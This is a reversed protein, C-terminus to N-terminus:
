KSNASDALNQLTRAAASAVHPHKDEKLSELVSRTFERDILTAAKAAKWRVFHRPDSSILKTIVGTLRQAKDPMQSHPALYGLLDLLFEKHTAEASSSIAYDSKKTERNFYWSIPIRDTSAIQLMRLNGSKLSVEATSIGRQISVTDGPQAIFSEALEVEEDALFVDGCPKGRKKFINVQASGTGFFGILMNTSSIAVHRLKELEIRPARKAVAIIRDNDIIDWHGNNMVGLFKDSSFRDLISKQNAKDSQLFNRLHIAALASFTGNTCCNRVADKLEFFDKTPDHNVISQLDPFASLDFNSL